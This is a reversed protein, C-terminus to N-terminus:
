VKPLSQMANQASSEQHAGRKVRLCVPLGFALVPTNLLYQPTVQDLTQLTTHTTPWLYQPM